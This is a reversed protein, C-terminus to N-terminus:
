AVKIRVVKMVEFDMGAISEIEPYYTLNVRAGTLNKYAKKRRFKFPTEVDEVMITNVLWDGDQRQVHSVVKLMESHTLDPHKELLKNLASKAM